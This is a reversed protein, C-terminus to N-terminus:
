QPTALVKGDKIKWGREILPDVVKPVTLAFSVHDCDFEECEECYPKDTFYVDVMNKKLSDYITAHDQYVNIHTFRPFEEKYTRLLCYDVAHQYNHFTKEGIKQDLWELVEGQITITVRKREEAM